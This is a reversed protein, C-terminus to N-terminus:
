IFDQEKMLAHKIHAPVGRCRASRIPNVHVSDRSNWSINNFLESPIIEMWKFRASFNQQSNLTHLFLEPEVQAAAKHKQKILDFLYVLLGHLLFIFDLCGWHKFHPIRFWGSEASSSEDLKETIRRGATALFLWKKWSLMHPHTISSSSSWENWPNILVCSPSTEDTRGDVSPFQQLRAHEFRNRKERPDSSCIWHDATLRLTHSGAAEATVRGSGGRSVSNFRKKKAELGLM